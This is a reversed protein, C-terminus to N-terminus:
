KEERMYAIGLFDVTDLATQAAADEYLLARLFATTLHNILDHARAMDWVKDSCVEFMGFERLLPSCEDVFIFHGAERLVALSKNVRLHRYFAYADREPVTVHDNSGVIILTPAFVQGLGREGFIPANWPALAVVARVRPDATPQWLGKPIAPLKRLDAFLEVHHRLYCVSGYAEADSKANEPNACWADLGEFDLCAGGVALATYGGFSHGVVAIRELDIRGALLGGVATLKEAFAIQRLVDDPRQVYSRVRNIEYKEPAIVGDFFTNGSHDVAMVVFGQSALHETLFLSQWRMGGSGHSFIVLPFPVKASLPPADRLARGALHVVGDKYIAMPEKNDSSQAPYWLALKLPRQADRIVIERTGVTYDGRLAFPPADPRPQRLPNPDITQGLLQSVLPFLLRKIM